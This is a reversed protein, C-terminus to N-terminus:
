RPDALAELADAFQESDALLLGPELAAASAMVAAVAASAGAAIRGATAVDVWDQQQARALELVAEVTIRTM